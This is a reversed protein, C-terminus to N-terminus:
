YIYRDNKRAVDTKGSRGIGVIKSLEKKQSNLLAAEEEPILILHVHKHEPLNVKQLPKFKGDEYVAPIAESM